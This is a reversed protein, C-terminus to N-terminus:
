TGAVRTRLLARDVEESEDSYSSVGGGYRGEKAEEMGRMVEPEPGKCM